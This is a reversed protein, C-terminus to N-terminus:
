LWGIMGLQLGFSRYSRDVDIDADEDQWEGVMDLDASLGVTFGFHDVPAIVFTPEATFALGYEGTDGSLSASHYTLGGRLWFGAVRSFMWVYGVRPAFVFESYDELQGGDDDDYTAFGLAGGLSLGDTVFFDFALRPVEFPSPQLRGRWGFSLSTWDEEADDIPGPVETTRHSFSVGFARDISFAPTGKEGFEQALVPGAAFLCVAALCSAISKRM